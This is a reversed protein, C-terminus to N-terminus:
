KESRRYFPLPVLNGKVLKDRIKVYVTGDKGNAPAAPFVASNLYALGIAKKLTPSLTGSTIKGIRSQGSADAFVEYGARPLGKDLLAIGVLKKPAGNEKQRLLAARGIFDGKEFKVAWGYGAEIPSTEDDYEHGYLPLAAELRLTDRAGLGCPSIGFAAGEALLQEWLKAVYDKTVFFEFGDEGTYGTRSIIIEGGGAPGRASNEGPRWIFCRNKKCPAVDSRTIKATLAAANPGQLSLMSIETAHRIVVDFNKAARQAELWALVKETNAANAVIIYKDPLKGVLLDDITGGRENCAISYQFQDDELRAADNTTIYQLFSLPPEINLTCHAINRERGLLPPHTSSQVKFTSSQVEIAGMHGIDFLGVAQRVANHEEIISTYQVPMEWGGFPVMRAGLNLHVKYLATQKSM